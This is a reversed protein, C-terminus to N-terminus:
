YLFVLTNYEEDSLDDGVTTLVKYVADQDSQEQVITDMGILQSSINELMSLLKGAVLLIYHDTCDLIVQQIMYVADIHLLEICATVRFPGALINQLTALTQYCWDEDDPFVIMDIMQGFFDPNSTAIRQFDPSESLDYFIQVIRYQPLPLAIIDISM